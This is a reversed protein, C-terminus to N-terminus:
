GNQYAYYAKINRGYYGGGQSRVANLVVGLNEAKIRRLEDRMRQLLGRSNGRARVVTVVGDVRPSLAIAESVVLLPGGDFIVHDYQELAREVFDNFLPSEFLETPNGPKPGTLLVHLNPVETEHVAADLQDPDNLVASLGLDGPVNFVHQLEPRRFNADVLLVRRGNLALGAALNCAVTTKGDGASPSTVLLTRTTDLSAAHHLRTRVQRFQEAVISHPSDYIALPLRSGAAEPDDAEHPIMGLLRLQRDVREIDRPSRVSTDTMERLFAIGLSLVLGLLVAAAMTYALKPFTPYEPVEPKSGWAAEAFNLQLSYEKLRRMDDKMEQISKRLDQERTQLVRYENMDKNLRGLDDGLSKIHTTIRELNANGADVESKLMSRMTESYSGRLEERTDDVMRQMRDRRQKLLVVSEHHEGLRSAYTGIDLNTEDLRMRIQLYRGSNNIQLEVEAPTRGQRLDEELYRLRGELGALEATIRLREQLLRDLQLQKGNWIFFTGVQDGGLKQETNRLQPIIETNLELVVQDHERNILDLKKEEAQRYEKTMRDIHHQVLEEIIVKTDKPVSHTMTVEILRSNAIPTASLHKDLDKYAEAQTEFQKWWDTERIRSSTSSVAEYFLTEHTLMQAQTRLAIEIEQTPVSRPPEGPQPVEVASKVLVLGRSQYRSYHKLLYGNAFYGGVACAMVMIIILWMHQRIIRWVDAGTIGSGQPPTAGSREALPGPVSVHQAPVMHRPMRIPATQPLTTM